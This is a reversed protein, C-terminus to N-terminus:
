FDASKEGSKELKMTLFDIKKNLEKVQNDLKINLSTVLEKLNKEKCSYKMHRYMSQKFAFVKDCTKCTYDNEIVETTKPNDPINPHRIM